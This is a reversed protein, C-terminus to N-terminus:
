MWRQDVSYDLWDDVSCMAFMQMAILFRYRIDLYCIAFYSRKPPFVLQGYIHQYTIQVKGRNYRPVPCTVQASGPYHVSVKELWQVNSM